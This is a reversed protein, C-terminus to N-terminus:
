IITSNINGAGMMIILVILVIGVVIALVMGLLAATGGKPKGCGYLILALILGGIATIITLIFSLFGWAFAGTEEEKYPAYVQEPRYNSSPGVSSGCAPCYRAGESMQKGCKSCYPM